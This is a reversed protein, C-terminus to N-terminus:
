KPPMCKALADACTTAMCKGKCDEAGGKCKTSCTNDCDILDIMAQVEAKAGKTACTVGCGMGGKNDGSKECAQNCALIEPCKQGVAPPDICTFIATMCAKTPPSDETPTPDGPLPEADGKGDDCAAMVAGFAPAAEKKAKHLCGFICAPSDKTEAKASCAETCMFTQACTQDGSPDVCGMIKAACAPDKSGFCPMAEMFKGQAEKTLKPVCSFMCQEDSGGKAECETQCGFVEYCALPGSKGSIVCDILEKGCAEEDGKAMCEAVASLAKAGVADTKALCAANCAFPTATKGTECGEFCNISEFCTGAGKTETGHAICAVFVSTCKEGMCDSLCGPETSDKCAPLCTKQVCSLLGAAPVLAADSSDALCANQCDKEFKKPACAAMVCDGVASCTKNKKGDDVDAATDGTQTDASTDSATDAATDAATDGGTATDTTDAKSTDAAGDGGEEGSCATLLAVASLTALILSIKRM